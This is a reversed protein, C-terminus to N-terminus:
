LMSDHRMPRNVSTGRHVFGERLQLTVVEGERLDVTARAVGSIIPVGLRKAIVAAHSDEASQETIVGGSERIADLYDASTDKVVLIEGPEM